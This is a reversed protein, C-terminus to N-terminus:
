GKDSVCYGEGVNAMCCGEIWEGETSKRRPEVQKPHRQLWNLGSIEPVRRLQAKDCEGNLDVTLGRLEDALLAVSWCFVVVLVIALASIGRRNM